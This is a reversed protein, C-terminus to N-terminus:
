SSQKEVLKSWEWGNIKMTGKGHFGFQGSYIKDECSFRAALEEPAYCIGMPKLVSDIVRCQWVDSSLTKKFNEIPLEQYAFLAVLNAFRKSKICFGGNGVCNEKTVDFREPHNDPYGWPAGIYDYNTFEDTWADPNLVAADWEQYLCYYTHFLRPTLTLVDWEYDVANIRGDPITEKRNSQDTHFLDIGLSDAHNRVDMRHYDTALVASNFKVKGMSVKMSDLTRIPDHCDISVLTVNPLNLM